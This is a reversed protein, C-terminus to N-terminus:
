PWSEVPFRPPYGVCFRRFGPCPECDRRCYGYDEPPRGQRNAKKRVAPAAVVLDRVEWETAVPATM